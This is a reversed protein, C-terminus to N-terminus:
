RLKAAISAWKDMLPLVSDRPVSPAHFIMREFGFDALKKIRSEDPPASTMSLSLNSRGFRKEAERLQKLDAAWDYKSGHDGPLWGDCYEAMREFAKPTHAGMIVPPGGPQVPKPYSWLKDFNVVEGHFEAEDKTWIERMALIKERVIKWRRKFNVGHNEMEEANWGGGIGFLLRGNSIMDLSAVQKALTIPDREVVLCIGTGLKIKKTVAAAASLAVFQDHTHWYEKPLPGGGPWASKRLVPIHTHEPLWLSEFGREEVAVALEVPQISYDTIFMIIGFNLM